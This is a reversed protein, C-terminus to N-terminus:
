SVRQIAGYRTVFKGPRDGRRQARAICSRRPSIDYYHFIFVLINKKISLIEWLAPCRQKSSKARM